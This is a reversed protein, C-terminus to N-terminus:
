KKNAARLRTCLVHFIGKSIDSNESMLEYLAKQELKFLYTDKTATISATRPEPDLAALEGFISRDGLIAFVTDGDHVKVEGDVIIYMSTGIDGKQFVIEDKKINVDEIYNIMEVLHEEPTSEFISVSKLIMVKELIMLMKFGKFYYNLANSVNQNIDNKIKLYSEDDLEINLKAMSWIASEKLMPHRFSIASKLYESCEIIKQSGITYILACKVWNSVKTDKKSIEIIRENITLNSRIIKSKSLKDELHSDELITFVDFKIETDLINDLLEFAYAKKISDGEQLNFKVKSIVDKPYILSLLNLLRTQNKVIQHKLANLLVKKPENLEQLDLVSEMVWFTNEIENTIKNKINISQERNAQFEISSLSNIIEFYIDNDLYDLNTLLLEKADDSKIKGIIKIIRILTNHSINQKYFEIKIYNLAENQGNILAVSCQSHLEKLHINKIIHKWLKSNHIRTTSILAAKRVDLNTDDLLKVLPQYFNDIAIEGLIECAIIRDQSDISSLFRNFKEGAILVGSIGANKILGITAYKQIIKNTSDLFYRLRDLEDDEILTAFTTIIKGKKDVDSENDILYMLHEKLSDIKYIQIQELLYSQMNKDYHFFNNTFEKISEVFSNKDFRELLELAYLIEASYKSKLGRQIVSKTNSDFEVNLGTKRKSLAKLLYKTYEKKISVVVIIWVVIVCMLIMSLDVITFEFVSTLLMLVIGMVGGTIPAIFSEIKSQVNLKQTPSFVQYLMKITPRNISANASSFSLKTVMALPILFALSGIFIWSILISSVGFSVLIPLTLLAILIGFRALYLGYAMSTFIFNIVGAIAFFIGIFGTLEQQNPYKITIEHFFIFDVFYYSVSVLITLLFLLLIYRDKFDQFISHKEIINKQSRSQKFSSKKIKLITFLLILIGVIAFEVVFFLNETGLLKVIFPMSFGSLVAALEQGSGIIGMLRKSQRIDFIIGVVGWLEINFYVISIELFVMLAFYVWKYDSFLLLLHLTLIILFLSVIITKFVNEIKFNDRLKQYIFGILPIVIATTSYVYPLIKASYNSLFLSNVGSLLFTISLGVLFSHLFLIGVILREDQKISLM